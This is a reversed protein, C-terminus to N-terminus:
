RSVGDAGPRRNSAIMIPLVSLLLVVALAAGVGYNRAIFLQKFFLTAIVDTDFRGGTMVWVLDFVKLSQIVLTALVVAITPLLAPIVIHRVVQWESAGDVRAAELMDNSVGKLGAALVVLAFGAWTWTAVSMLAFNNIQLPGPWNEPGAGTLWALLGRRDQTWAVPDISVQGLVANVTGISANYEFMFKWIVGAAVFSIAMPIFLAARASAEYRVRSTLIAMALGLLTTVLPFVIVWLLNNAFAVHTDASLPRPNDILFQYNDFGVFSRSRNDLLSRRITDIVPYILFVTLLLLAPSMWLWPTWWRRHAM